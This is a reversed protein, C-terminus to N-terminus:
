AAAMVVFALPQADPLVCCDGDAHPEAGRPAATRVRRLRRDIRVFRATRGCSEDRSLCIRGTGSTTKAGHAHSRFDDDSAIVKGIFFPYSGKEARSPMRM